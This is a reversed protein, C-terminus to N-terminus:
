PVHCPPPSLLLGPSTQQQKGEAGGGGNVEQRQSEWFEQKRWIDRGPILPPRARREQGTQRRLRPEWMRPHVTCRFYCRMTSLYTHTYTYM